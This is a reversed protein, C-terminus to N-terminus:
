WDHSHPTGAVSNGGQRSRKKSLDESVECTNGSIPASTASLCRPACAEGGPRRRQRALGRGYSGAENDVCARRWAPDPATSTSFIATPIRSGAAKFNGFVHIDGDRRAGPLDYHEFEVGADKLSSVVAELENGVSWTASYGQQDRCQSEYILVTSKGSSYTAVGQDNSGVASICSGRMSIGPPLWTECQSLRWRM